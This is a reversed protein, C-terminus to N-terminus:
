PKLNDPWHNSIRAFQRACCRLRRRVVAAARALRLMDPLDQPSKVLGALVPGIRTRKGDIGAMAAPPVRTGAPDLVVRVAACGVGARAAVAAIAGSEMDVALAGSQQHLARKAAPGTLAHGPSALLGGEVPGCPELSSSLLETIQQNVPHENGSEDLIGNGVIIQGPRCDILGGASGCSILLEAGASVARRAAAAAAAPGVGSHFISLAPGAAPAM